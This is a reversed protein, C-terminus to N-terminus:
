GGIPTGDENYYLGAVVPWNAQTLSLLDDDTVLSQDVDGNPQEVKDAVGPGAADLRLLTSGATTDDKMIANALSKYSELASDKYIYAQQINVAAVRAQFDQDNQLDSQSKYSM